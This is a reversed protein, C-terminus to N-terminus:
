KFRQLSESLGAYKTDLSRFVNDSLLGQGWAVALHTRVVAVQGVAEFIVQRSFRRDVRSLGDAIKATLATASELVQQVIGAQEAQKQSDVAEHVDMLAVYAEQWLKHEHFNTM